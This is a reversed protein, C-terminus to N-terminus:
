NGALEKLRKMYAAKDETASLAKAEEETIGYTESLTNLIYTYTEDLYATIGYADAAPKLEGYKQVGMLLAHLAEEKMGMESYNKYSDAKRKLQMLLKSQEYMEQESENLKEGALTQYVTEYERNYFADKAEAKNVIGPIVFIFILIVALITAAFAVPPLVMAASLKKPKEKVKNEDETIEIAKPLKEKKPKKEKVKKEKIPKEKKEKKPKKKKRRNEADERDLEDLIAQNEDKTRGSDDEVEETIADLLRTFLGKKKQAPETDANKKIHETDANKELEGAEEAEPAISKKRGFLGGQAKEKKEKKEKKKKEPKPNEPIDNLEALNAMDVSIPESDTDDAEIGGLNFLDPEEEDAGHYLANIDDDSMNLMSLMDDDVLEHNDSKDLLDNIESLDPDEEHHESVDEMGADEGFLDGLGDLTPEEDEVGFDSIGDLVPEAPLDEQVDSASAGADNLGLQNDLEEDLKSLLMDLDTDEETGDVSVSKLLNDLYEEDSGM